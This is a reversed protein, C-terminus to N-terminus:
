CSGPPPPAIDFSESDSFNENVLPCTINGSINSTITGTKSDGSLKVTYSGEGSEVCGSGGGEYTMRGSKPGSPTFSFQYTIGNQGAGTLKFPKELDCILGSMKMKSGGTAQYRALCISKAKEVMNELDPGSSIGLLQRQREAGLWFAILISPDKKAKCKKIAEEECRQYAINVFSDFEAATIGGGTAGLLQRQREAGLIKTITQQAEECSSAGAQMLPRIVQDEYESITGEFDMSSGDDEEGSLQKQRENALEEGARQSIRREADAAQQKLFASREAHNTRSIGFGSFHGVLIKLDASAVVPLAPDVTKGDDSFQFFVQDDIPIAGDGNGGAAPLTITLTAFDYFFLGEPAFEVSWSPGSFPLGTMTKVPTMTIETEGPLAGTPIELSFKTGDAGTAAIVGGEISITSKVAHETDLTIALNADPTDTATSSGCGPAAVILTMTILIIISRILKSLRTM